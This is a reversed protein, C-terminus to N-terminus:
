AEASRRKALGTGAQCPGEPFLQVARTLGPGGQSDPTKQPPCPVLASSGNRNPFRRQPVWSAVQPVPAPARPEEVQALVPESIRVLAMTLGALVPFLSNYAVASFLSTVAFSVISFNLYLAFNSIQRLEPIKRARRHLKSTARLASILASIYFLFAPIGVESSVQTYANHTETWSGKRQGQAIAMSNEAVEFMGPGVGFLPHRATLELSRNLMAKRGMTSAVAREEIGQNEQADSDESFFTRYRARVSGPLVAITVAAALISVLAVKVKNAASARFFVLLLLALMALLAGRSGTRNITVFVLACSGLAFLRAIASRANLAILAWFPFGILMAQALDNPNEFKGQPLTLRGTETSGFFVSILALILIGFAVTYIAKRAQSVSSIFGAIAISITFAQLWIFFVRLSGGRWVSFPISAVFCVTFGALCKGITSQFAYRFFGTLILIAAMARYVLGPIHLYTFKLDFVRSYSIFLFALTLAFGLAGM